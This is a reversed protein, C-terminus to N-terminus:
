CASLLAADSGGDLSCGHRRWCRRADGEAYSYRRLGSLFGGLWIARKQKRNEDGFIRHLPLRCRSRTFRLPEELVCRRGAPISSRAAAPRYRIHRLHRCTRGFRSCCIFAPQAEPHARYFTGAAGSDYPGCNPSPYPVVTPGWIQEM